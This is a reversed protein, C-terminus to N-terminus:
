MDQFWGNSFGLSIAYRKIELYEKESVRRCIESFGSANYAPFYQSMLSLYVNKFGNEAITKLVKRSDEIQGPLILHRILVGKHAIGEHDLVWEGTQRFMEEIANKANEYYNKVGSFKLSLRDNYYKFDPMYVDVIKDLRKVVEQREYGSSNYVVPINLGSKQSLWLAKVIHFLYPTPSVLNINHAGRKQLYLFIGSLDEISYFTGNALQSIPYNQCFVCKLTCGSFFVTGSGNVGSIPPEEGFHLNFSAIKVRKLAHCVGQKNKEREAFCTRPCLNCPSHNIRFFDITEKWKKESLEKYLPMHLVPAIDLRSQLRFFPISCSKIPGKM